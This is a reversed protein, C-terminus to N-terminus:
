FYQGLDEPQSDGNVLPNSVSYDGSGYPDGVTDGSYDGPVGGATSSDGYVGMRSGVPGSYVGTGPVIGPTTYVTNRDIVKGLIGGISNWLTSDNSAYRKQAQGSYQDGVNPPRMVRPSRTGVPGAAGAKRSVFWYAGIALAAYLAIKDPPMNAATM